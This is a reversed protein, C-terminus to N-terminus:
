VRYLPSKSGLAEQCFFNLTLREQDKGFTKVGHFVDCGFLVMRNFKNDVTISEEYQSHLADYANEYATKELEKGSYLIEKQELWETKQISFGKKQSFISTGTDPEPNKNLYIIGGFQSGDNDNHVWGRNVKDYQNESFPKILQFQMEFSWKETSPHFLSLLKEGVYLFLNEDLEWIQKTRKGPWRGNQNSYFEQSMAFDLVYDPDEFFNDLITIPYM